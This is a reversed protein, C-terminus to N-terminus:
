RAKKREPLGRHIREKRWAECRALHRTDKTAVVSMTGRDMVYWVFDGAIVYYRNMQRPM